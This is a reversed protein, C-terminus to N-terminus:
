CGYHNTINKVILKELREKNKDSVFSNHPTVIVNNFDWLKSQPCLPETDFVDLAAGHLKGESLTQILAEQDIVGGRAINILTADSKMADFMDKNFLNRSQETLPLTLVVVDFNAIISSLEEIKYCENIYPSQINYIDVGCCEVGMAYLRKAVEGGVSGMGVVLARSGYLEKIHRHKHWAHNQQAVFFHKSEKYLALISSIAWEAMPVSYVGRANCLEIGRAEIKALPVRDLGASTLQIFKLSTFKEIDNHMFLSNCIVASYDSLSRDIEELENTVFDIEFGCKELEETLYQSPHHAGTILIKDM